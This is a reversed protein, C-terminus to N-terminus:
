KNRDDGKASLIKHIQNRLHMKVLLDGSSELIYSYSSFEERSPHLGIVEEAYPHTGEGAELDKIVVVYGNNHVAYFVGKYCTVDDFFCMRKQDPTEPTALTWTEQEGGIKYYALKSNLGQITMVVTGSSVSPSSLAVRRVYMDRIINSQFTFNNTSGFRKGVYYLSVNNTGEEKQEFTHLMSPFTTLPPLNLLSRSLPNFLQIESNHHVTMLWGGPFSGCIRRDSIEPIEAKYTNGDCLSFFGLGTENNFDLSTSKNNNLPVILWPLHNPFQLPGCVAKWPKCVCGFRILDPFSLRKSILEFLLHEPLQSWNEEEM